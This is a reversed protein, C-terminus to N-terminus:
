PRFRPSSAWEQFLAEAEKALIRTAPLKRLPLPRGVEAMLEKTSFGIKECDEQTQAYYMRSIKAWWIASVCMLCPECTTYIEAGSLDTTGLRKCADRIALIEGHATPDNLAIQQSRGEGIVEGNKVVLAVFPRADKDSLRKRAMDIARTMIQEPTM